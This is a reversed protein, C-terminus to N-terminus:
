QQVRKVWFCLNCVMLCSARDPLLCHIQMALLKKKRNVVFAAFESLVEMFRPNSGVSQKGQPGMQAGIIAFNDLVAQRINIRSLCVKFGDVEPYKHTPYVGIVWIERILKSSNEREKMVNESSSKTEVFAM